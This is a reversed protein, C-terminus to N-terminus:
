FMFDLGAASADQYGYKSDGLFLASKKFNDYKEPIDGDNRLDFFMEVEANVRLGM